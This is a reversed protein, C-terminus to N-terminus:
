DKTLFPIKSPFSMVPRWAPNGPIERESIHVDEISIDLATGNGINKLEWDSGTRQPIAIVCPRL